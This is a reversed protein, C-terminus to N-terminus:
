NTEPASNLMWFYHKEKGEQVVNVGEDEEIETLLRYFSSKSVIGQEEVVIERLNLGSIKNYKKILSILMSKVYEKSHRTVKKFIKEKLNQRTNAKEQLSGMNSQVEDLRRNLLELKDFIGQTPIATTLQSSVKLEMEHKFTRMEEQLEQKLNGQSLAELRQFVLKQNTYVSNLHTNVENKFASVSENVTNINRYYEDVFYKLEDKTLFRDFKQEITHISTDIRDQHNHLYNIWQNVHQVDVKVKNFSDQLSQDLVGIKQNVKQNVLEQNQWRKFFM